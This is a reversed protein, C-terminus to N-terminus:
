EDRGSILGLDSLLERVAADQEWLLVVEVASFGRLVATLGKGGAGRVAGLGISLGGLFIMAGKLAM